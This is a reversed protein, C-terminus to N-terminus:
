SFFLILFKQFDKKTYKDQQAFLPDSQLMKYINTLKQVCQALAEVLSEDNKIVITNKGEMHYIELKKALHEVGSKVGVLIRSLREYKIKVRECKNSLNNVNTEIEDLQKRSHPEAREYKIGNLEEKLRNREHTLLDIREQYHTELDKLSKTTEDQTIYKQIIENVDVVGTVQHIKKFAAEFDNIEERMAENDMANEDHSINMKELGKKKKEEQSKEKPDVMQNERRDAMAQREEFARKKEEIYKERLSKLAKKKFEFKNLETQALEKAHIADHSLLLLEVYDHEKGKLSREIAALQNDYGIREEKLRKVIQEYTKRISQAENYKIMIKDLKNELIRITRTLPSEEYAAYKADTVENLKDQLRHLVRNKEKTKDKIDDLRKKWM